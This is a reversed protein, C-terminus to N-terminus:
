KPLKSDCKEEFSELPEPKLANANRELLFTKAINGFIAFSIVDQPSKAFEKSDQRAKELEPELLDAPRVDIIKEGEGLVKKVLSENLAAPTRGYLGKIVNRTETTIT